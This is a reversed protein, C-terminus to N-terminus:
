AGVGASEQLRGSHSPAALLKRIGCTIYEEFNETTHYSLLHAIGDPDIRLGDVQQFQSVAATIADVTAPYTNGLGYKEAMWGIAGYNTAIVPCRAVAAYLM